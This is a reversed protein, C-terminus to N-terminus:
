LRNLQRNVVEMFKNKLYVVTYIAMVYYVNDEPSFRLWLAVFLGTLLYIFLIWKVYVNIQPLFLQVSLIKEYYWAANEGAAMKGQAFQKFHAIRILEDQSIIQM